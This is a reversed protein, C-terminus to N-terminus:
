RDYSGPALSAQRDPRVGLRQEIDHYSDMVPTFDRREQLSDSHEVEDRVAHYSRSVRDFAVQVDSDSGRGEVVHRFDRADEALGRTDRMLADYDPNSKQYTADQALVNAHRELDDASTAVSDRTSVCAALGALACAGVVLKVTSSFTMLNEEQSLALM